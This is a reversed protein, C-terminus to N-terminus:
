LNRCDRRRRHDNGDADETTTDSDIIPCSEDRDFRVSLDARWVGTARRRRQLRSDLSRRLAYPFVGACGYGAASPIRRPRLGACGQLGRTPGQGISAPLPRSLCFTGLEPGCSVRTEGPPRQRSHRGHPANRRRRWAGIGLTPDASQGAFSDTTFLITLPDGLVAAKIRSDHTLPQALFEERHIQECIHSSSQQCLARAGAWDPNAGVLVLGTYGGQSFGFFGIREVDIRSAAPSADIMFDILRKIDTPREIFVSLDGSRSLDSATDGPHNIAAAVFASGEASAPPVTTPSHSPSVEISTGHSFGPCCMVLSCARPTESRQHDFPARPVRVGFSLHRLRLRALGSRGLLPLGFDGGQSSRALAANVLTQRRALLFDGINFGCPEDFLALLYEM